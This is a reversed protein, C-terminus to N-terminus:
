PKGAKRKDLFTEGERGAFGFGTTCSKLLQLKFSFRSIFSAGPGALASFCVLPLHRGFQESINASGFSVGGARSALPCGVVQRFIISRALLLLSFFFCSNAFGQESPSTQDGEGGELGPEM